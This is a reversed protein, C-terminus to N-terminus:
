LQEFLRPSCMAGLFIEGVCMYIHIYIYIYIYIQSCISYILLQFRLPAVGDQLLNLDSTSLPARVMYKRDFTLVVTRSHEIKNFM